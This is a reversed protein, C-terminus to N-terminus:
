DLYYLTTVINAKVFYGKRRLRKFSKQVDNISPQLNDMIPNNRIENVMYGGKHAPINQLITLVNADIALNREKELRREEIVIDYVDVLWGTLPNSFFWRVWSGIWHFLNFRKNKNASDSMTNKIEKRPNESM